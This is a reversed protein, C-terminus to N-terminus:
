VRLPSAVKHLGHLRERACVFHHFNHEVLDTRWCKGAIEGVEYGMDYTCTLEVLSTSIMEGVFSDARPIIECQKYASKGAILTVHLWTVTGFKWARNLPRMERHEVLGLRFMRESERYGM